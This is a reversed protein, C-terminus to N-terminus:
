FNGVWNLVALDDINLESHGVVAVQRVKHVDLTQSGSDRCCVQSDLFVIPHHWLSAIDGFM